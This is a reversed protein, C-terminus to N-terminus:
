SISQRRQAQFSTVRRLVQQKASAKANANPPKRAVLVTDKWVASDDGFSGQPEWNTTASLVDLDAWRALASIGDPYYRWCDVPYRHEYGGSPVILCVIGAPKLVRAVEMLTVWPYEIHEFTQGSVVVDYKNSSLPSWDYPSPLILDVGEGDSADVGTYHWEPDDLLTRYSGNVNMSGVDLIELHERRRGSLYEAVFRQMAQMSSEHVDVGMM